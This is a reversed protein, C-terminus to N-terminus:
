GAGPAGTACGPLCKHLGSALPCSTTGPADGPSTQPPAPAVAPLAAMAHAHQLDTANQLLWALDAPAQIQQGRFCPEGAKGFPGVTHHLSALVQPGNLYLLVKFWSTELSPWHAAQYPLGQNGPRPELEFGEAELVAQYSTLPCPAQDEM